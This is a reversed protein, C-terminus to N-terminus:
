NVHTLPRGKGKEMRLVCRARIFEEVQNDGVDVSATNAMIKEVLVSTHSYELIWAM